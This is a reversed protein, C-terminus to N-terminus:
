QPAEEQRVRLRAEAASILDSALRLARLPPVAVEVRQGDRHYAHVLIPAPAADVILVRASSRSVAELQPELTM